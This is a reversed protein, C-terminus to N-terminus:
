AGVRQINGHVTLLGVECLVSSLNKKAAQTHPILWVCYNEDTSDEAGGAHDSEFGEIVVFMYWKDAYHWANHFACTGWLVLFIHERKKYHLM